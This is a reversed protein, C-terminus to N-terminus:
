QNENRSIVYTLVGQLMVREASNEPRPILGAKGSREGRCLCGAAIAVRDDALAAGRGARQYAADGLPQRPAPYDTGIVKPDRQKGAPRFIVQASFWLSFHDQRAVLGTLDRPLTVPSM